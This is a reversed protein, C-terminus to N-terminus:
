SQELHNPDFGEFTMQDAFKATKSRDEEDRVTWTILPLGLKRLTVCVHTSTSLSPQILHAFVLRGGQKKRRMCKEGMWGEVCTRAHMGTDGASGAVGYHTLAVLLRTESLNFTEVPYFLQVLQFDGCSLVAECRGCTSGLKSLTRVLAAVRSKHQSPTGVFKRECTHRLHM